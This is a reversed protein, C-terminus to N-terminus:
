GNMNQLEASIYRQGNEVWVKLLKGSQAKKNNKLNFICNILILKNKFFYNVFLLIYGLVEQFAKRQFQSSNDMLTTLNM